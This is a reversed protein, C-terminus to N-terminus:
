SAPADAPCAADPEDPEAVEVEGCAEAAARADGKVFVLVNQHTKGLKRASSFTRGARIPLSGVMTVLIAENYLRLGTAEFAEITDPVFGRCCGDPGRVEGVVFCAFRDPKLIAAAHRIIKRYAEIFASYEFTSLDRPDDSYRELDAYPPCSFILDARLGQVLAPADRSDGEIWTPLHERCLGAAQERNAALQEARLDIGVYDRGVLSALIGRVSGGAFPDFVVAGAPSFWRYVLECLVPDFISTGSLSAAGGEGDGPSSYPQMTTHFTLGGKLSSTQARKLEAAASLGLMNEGRGAESRIGTELWHRKRDQWYGQRADLVSFPPVGFRDLLSVRVTTTTTAATVEALLEDIETSSFGSDALDADEAQLERLLKALLSDDWEALEGLKNDALAYLRASVPDLDLWLVPVQDLGLKTAALFRTDGAIIVRDARRALIPNTWGFRQISRVVADVAEANRRPNGPFRTLSTRAVYEVALPPPAVPLRQDGSNEASADHSAPLDEAAM